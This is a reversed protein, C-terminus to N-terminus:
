NGNRYAQILNRERASLIMPSRSRSQRAGNLNGPNARGQQRPNRGRANRAQGPRRNGRQSSNNISSRARNGPSRSRPRNSSSTSTNNESRANEGQTQRPFGSMAQTIHDDTLPSRQITLAHRSLKDREAKKDQEILSNLLNRAENYKAPDEALSHEITHLLMQVKQEDRTAKINLLDAAEVLLDAAKNKLFPM